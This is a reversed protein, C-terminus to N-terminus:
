VGFSLAMVSAVAYDPPEDVNLSYFFPLILVSIRGLNEVFSLLPTAHPQENRVRPWFMWIVNPLMLVLPVVAGSKVPIVVLM